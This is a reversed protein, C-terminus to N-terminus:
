AYALYELLLLGTPIGETIQVDIQDSYYPSRWTTWQDDKWSGSGGSVWANDKRTTVKYAGASLRGNVLWGFTWTM